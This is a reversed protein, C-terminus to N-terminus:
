GFRPAVESAGAIGGLFRHLELRLGGGPVLRERAHAKRLLVIAARHGLDFRGPLRGVRLGERRLEILEVLGHLGGRLPDRRRLLLLLLAARGVRLGGQLLDFGAPHRLSSAFLSACSSQRTFRQKSDEACCYAFCSRVLSPWSYAAPSHFTAFRLPSAASTVTGM